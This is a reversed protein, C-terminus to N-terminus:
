QEPQRIQLVTQGVPTRIASSFARARAFITASLPRGSRLRRIPRESNNPLSPQPGCAGSAFKVSVWGSSRQVISRSFSSAFSGAAAFILFSFSWSSFSSFSTRSSARLSSASISRSFFSTRLCGRFHGPAPSYAGMGGTNPGHDGDQLRKHDQSTALSVVNKGDCLVIFSAEEGDLFQEIVVAAGGANHTVGLRNDELIWDIAEHAEALTMAVVVGKGAALGDAKIVIPAGM